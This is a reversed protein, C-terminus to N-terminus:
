HAMELNSKGRKWFSDQYLGKMKSILNEKVNMTEYILSMELVRKSVSLFYWSPFPKNGSSNATQNGM